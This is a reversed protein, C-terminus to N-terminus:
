CRAPRVVRSPPMPPPRTRSATATCLFAPREGVRFASDEIARSIDEGAAIIRDWGVTYLLVFQYRANLASNCRSRPLGAYASQWPLVRRRRGAAMARDAKAPKQKGGSM